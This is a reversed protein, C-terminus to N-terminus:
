ANQRNVDMCWELGYISHLTVPMIAMVWYKQSIIPPVTRTSLSAPLPDFDVIFSGATTLSDNPVVAM